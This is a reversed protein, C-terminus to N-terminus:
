ELSTLQLMGIGLESAHTITQSSYDSARQLLVFLVRHSQGLAACLCPFLFTSMSTASVAASSPDFGLLLTFWLDISECGSVSPLSLTM